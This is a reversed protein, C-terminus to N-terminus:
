RTLAAHTRAAAVVQVIATSSQQAYRKDVLLEAHTAGDITRHVSNTSLLALKDQADSWGADQGQGATLVILPKAGFSTLAKAQTFATPLQSWEDNMGRFERATAAFAQEQQRAQTPLGAFQTAAVVRGIGFRALTPLVGSVRRYTAYFAPYNPLATFQEPTASDLLVMGAVEAPYRAAFIMNYTGGVSHGALVYPGGVGATALTAHLDTALAIGDQPGDAPESWGEGARDYACVRTTTAVSNVIWAWSPTREGFGSSLLVTPSGTGTCHLFMRHGNVQYTQGAPAQLSHDMSELVTEVGGGVAAIALVACVPQVLWARTRSRLARRVSRMMWIALALVAPPWIWGLASMVQDGPRSVVLGGGVIAMAAAPVRAWRQPQSTRRASLVALMAWGLAFALM